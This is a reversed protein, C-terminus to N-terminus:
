PGGMRGELEAVRAELEEVRGRLGSVRYEVWFVVCLILGVILVLPQVDM